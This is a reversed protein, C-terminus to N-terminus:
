CKNFWGEWIKSDAFLRVINKDLKGEEAMDQLIGIAREPPMGMRYPRERTTLAEFIDMMTIIRPEIKIDDGKLGQPYGSGDLFEHHDFAWDSIGEFHKWYTIENLIRGTAAAHDRMVIWEDKTLTGRRIKLADIDEKELIPVTKGEPNVYMINELKLVAEYEEDSLPNSSNIHGVLELAQQLENLASDREEESNDGSLYDIIIQGKKMAFRYKIEKFKQEYLRTSKDLIEPPTSIKGIDHLLAALVLHEQHKKSFYYPHGKDPFMIGLYRVFDECYKAVNQTHLRTFKSREDVASTLVQIFSKFLMHIERVYVLNALTSAAVRCLATTLKSNYVNYYSMPEKTIPNTANLLQIVGIMEQEGERYSLLPLVLMSRTRYGTMEDYKKPGQFNFREDKYVDEVIITERHIACYASVNEINNKDLKIPPLRGEDELNVVESIDMTNNKLVRFHLKGEILVYITGADSYTLEMMKDLIVELLNTYDAELNFALVAELIKGPEGGVTLPESISM